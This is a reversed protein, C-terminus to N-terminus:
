IIYFPLPLLTPRFIIYDKNWRTFKEEFDLFDRVCVRRGDTVVQEWAINDNSRTQKVYVNSFPFSLYKEKQLEM